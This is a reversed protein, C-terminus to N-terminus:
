DLRHSVYYWHPAVKRELIVEVLQNASSSLGPPWRHDQFPLYALDIADYKLDYFDKHLDSPQLSRSSFLYGAVNSGKGRWTPFLILLLGKQKRTVYVRGDASAPAQWPPLIVRGHVDPRLRGNLVGAVIQQAEARNFPIENTGITDIFVNYNLILIGGALLMVALVFVLCWALRTM